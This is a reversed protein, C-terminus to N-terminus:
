AVSEAPTRGFAARAGLFLLLGVPGLMFTLLLCPILLVGHVRETVGARAIWTGVFLDFALYHLWGATLAADSAFLARVQEISGFGGGEAEGFGRMILLAYAVALLAPVVRGTARWTWERIAPLFLSLALIIWCLMALQNGLSFVLSPSLM